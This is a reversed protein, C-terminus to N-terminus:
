IGTCPSFCLIYWCITASLKTTHGDSGLKADIVPITSGDGMGWIVRELATPVLKRHKAVFGQQPDVFVATCYLTGGDREIVGVVIFLNHTKAVQEVRAIAPSQPVEIAAAHYRAFEERGEPARSGVTTGFTSFQADM